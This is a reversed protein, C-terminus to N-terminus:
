KQYLSFAFGKKIFEFNSLFVNDYVENNSAVIVYTGEKILKSEEQSIVNIKRSKLLIQMRQYDPIGLSDNEIIYVEESGMNDLIYTAIETDGKLNDHAENVKNICIVSNSWLFIILVPIVLFKFYRNSIILEYLILCTTSIAVIYLLASRLNDNDVIARSFAALRNTDIRCQLDDLNNICYDLTVLGIIVTFIVCGLIERYSIHKYDYIVSYACLCIIIPFMFEYYRGYFTYRMDGGHGLMTCAILMLVFSVMIFIKTVAEAYEKDSLYSVKFAKMASKIICIGGPLVIGVTAHITYLVKSCFCFFNKVSISDKLYSLRTNLLNGDELSSENAIKIAEKYDIINNKINYLLVFSIVAVSLLLLILKTYGKKQQTVCVYFLLIFLAGSVVIARSHIFFIFVGGIGLLIYYRKKKYVLSLYLLLAILCYWFALFVECLVKLTNAAIFPTLCSTFAIFSIGFSYKNESIETIFKYLILFIGIVCLINIIYAGRVLQVGTTTVKFLPILLISYGYGYYPTLAIREWEMGKGDFYAANWMYVAEDSLEFMTHLNPINRGYIYILTCILTLNIGWRMWKNINQGTLKPIVKESM